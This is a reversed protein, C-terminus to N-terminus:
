ARIRRAVSVTFIGWRDIQQDIKEFGAVRVLEDMEAQSRRRMIWPEGERNTLVRAIFEAQPHWPMNTYILYAGANMAGADMADALGRLSQLIRPNDNFLEYIGSAIAITPAPSISALSARDFVDGHAVTVNKLELQSALQSAADLNSQKYDRLLVSEVEGNYDRVNELVYRGVGSAVDVIRVPKGDRRLRAICERLARGLHQRRVRIGRWGPSNLYFYDVARGFPTRGRVRNEYVYDLTHGSDFGTAWGLRVGDSL